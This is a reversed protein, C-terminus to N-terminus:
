VILFLEPSCPRGPARHTPDSRSPSAGGTVLVRLSALREWAKNPVIRFCIGQDTGIKNKHDADFVTPASPSSTVWATPRRFTDIPVLRFLGGRRQSTPLQVLACSRNNSLHMYSRLIRPAPYTPRRPAEDLIITWWKECESRLTRKARRRVAKM